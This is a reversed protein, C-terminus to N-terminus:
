SRFHGCFDATNPLSAFLILSQNCIPVREQGFQCLIALILEGVKEFDKLDELFESCVFRTKKPSIQKSFQGLIPSTPGNQFRM